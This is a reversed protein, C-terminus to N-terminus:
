LRSSREGSSSSNGKALGRLSSSGGFSGDPQRAFGIDASAGRADKKRIVVEACEAGPGGWYGHLPQATDHTEVAAPPDVKLFTPSDENLWRRVREHRQQATVPVARAGGGADYVSEVDASDDGAAVAELPRDLHVLSPDFQLRVVDQLAPILCSGGTVFVGAISDAPYGRAAAGDLAKRLGRGARALIDRDRLLQEFEGRTIEHSYRAGSAPDAAGIVARGSGGLAIKADEASALLRRFM